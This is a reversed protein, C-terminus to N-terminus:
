EEERKGLVGFLTLLELGSPSGIVLMIDEEGVSDCLEGRVITDVAASWSGLSADSAAIGDMPTSSRDWGRGRSYM